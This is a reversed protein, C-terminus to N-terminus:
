GLFLTKKSFDPDVRQDGSRPTGPTNEPYKASNQRPFVLPFLQLFVMEFFFTFISFFGQKSFTLIAFILILVRKASFLGIKEM